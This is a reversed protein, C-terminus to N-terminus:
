YSNRSNIIELLIEIKADKKVINKQLEIIEDTLKKVEISNLIFGWKEDSISIQEQQNNTNEISM